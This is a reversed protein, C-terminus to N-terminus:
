VWLISISRRGHDFYEVVWGMDTGLNGKVQHANPVAWVVMHKNTKWMVEVINMLLREYGKVVM